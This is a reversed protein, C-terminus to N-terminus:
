AETKGIIGILKKYKPLFLHGFFCKVVRIYILVQVIELM